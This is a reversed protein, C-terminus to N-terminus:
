SSVGLAQNVYDTVATQVGSSISSSLSSVVSDLFQSTCSTSTAFMMGGAMVLALWRYIRRLSMM